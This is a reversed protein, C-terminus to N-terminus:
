EYFVADPHSAIFDAYVEPGAQYATEAEAALTELEWARHQRRRAHRDGMILASTGLVFIVVLAAFGAAASHFQHGIVGAMAAAFIAVIPM